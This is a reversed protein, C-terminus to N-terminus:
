QIKVASALIECKTEKYEYSIIKYNKNEQFSIELLNSVRELYQNWRRDGKPLPFLIFVLIGVGNCGQLKFGDDIISDINKTIPRTKSEIGKVVWNTNSTKLELFYRQNDKTFSIDASKGKNYMYEVSLENFGYEELHQALEFKLWGEFKARQRLAIHMLKTHDQIIEEIKLLILEEM